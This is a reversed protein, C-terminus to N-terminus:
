ILDTIRLPSPVEGLEPPISMLGQSIVLRGGGVLVVIGCFIAGTVQIKKYRRLLSTQGGQSGNASPSGNASSERAM